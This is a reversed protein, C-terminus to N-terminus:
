ARAGMLGLFRASADIARFFVPLHFKENPAHIRDDPLAFGMLVTPLGLMSRLMSVVPISGGSRLLRPAAGFADELARGALRLAPHRRSLTVPHAALTRRVACRVTPPAAAAVHARVLREIEEPTQDPVLRLNLKATAAAPIVAHTGAGQYGGVIGNITLAPRVTSREYLTYGAEGWARTVGAQGLLEADRPGERRMAAREEAAVDRVRDYFGAIAVRGDSSHLRGLLEALVQLPNHVMGGFTGSHLDHEPGRVEVELSLAGRLSYTLAPLRPALMRTDSIVAVDARFTQAEDRLAQALHPSGIEEEGEFLCVVNVPLGAPGALWRQVAKVHTMLQGKDDAVGRGFIDAGRITPVFPPTSWANLPEAPQVDYHGYILVTPRERAHRWEATVIPHGRTEIVRARELGIGALHRALWAACARVDAAHTPQASVSPFAAFARLDRLASAPTGAVAESGAPSLSASSSM